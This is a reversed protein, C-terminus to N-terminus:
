YRAPAAEQKKNNKKSGAMADLVGVLATAVIM